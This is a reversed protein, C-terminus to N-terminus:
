SESGDDIVRTGVNLADGMWRLREHLHKVIQLLQRECGEASQNTFREKLWAEVDEWVLDTLCRNDWKGEIKVRLYIGDLDRCILEGTTKWETM